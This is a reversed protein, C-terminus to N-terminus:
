DIFKTIFEGRKLSPKGNIEGYWEYYLRQAKQETTYDYFYEGVGTKNNIGLIEEFIKNYKADYIIIKVLEPDVKENNFDYFVCELRVTDGYHYVNVDRRNLM